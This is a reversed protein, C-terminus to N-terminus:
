FLIDSGRCSSDCINIKKHIVQFLLSHKYGRLWWVKYYLTEEQVQLERIQSTQSARSGQLGGTEVKGSSSYDSSAVVDPELNQLAKNVTHIHHAHATALPHLDPALKTLTTREGKHPNQFNLDPPWAQTPLLNLKGASGDGCGLPKLHTDPTLLTQLRVLGV